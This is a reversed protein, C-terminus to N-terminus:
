QAPKTAAPSQRQPLSLTKQVLEVVHPIAERVAPSMAGGITTLDEVEVALIAVQEPVPLHMQRGAALAEFLGVGHPSSGPAIPTDSEGARSSDPPRLQRITGPPDSGGAIADIVVLRRCGLLYDLLYFGTEATEIIEVDPLPNERLIQAVAPGLGDDAILSNGLCLVRDNMQSEQAEENATSKATPM